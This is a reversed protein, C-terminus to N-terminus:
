KRGIAKMKKVSLKNGLTVGKRLNRIIDVAQASTSLEKEAKKMPILMAVEEGHKTIIITKGQMVDVLLRSFHTKAEFAGVTVM